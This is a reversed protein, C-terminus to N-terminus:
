NSIKGKHILRAKLVQFSATTPATPPAPTETISKPVDTVPPTVTQLPPTGPAPDNKKIAEVQRKDLTEPGNENSKLGLYGAASVGLLTLQWTEFEPLPYLIGKVYSFFLTIYGIGFILNFMVAQFRHITVGGEDSMIDLFLGKTKEVDQHRAPVDDESNDNDRGIQNNDMVRGFISTALTGGLLMVATPNLAILNGSYIFFSVFCGLVIMTWWFLQVRSYSYPRDKLPRLENTSPDYSLDKCLNTNWFLYLGSGLVLLFGLIVSFTFNRLPPRYLEKPHKKQYDYSAALSASDANLPKVANSDAATNTTGAALNGKGKNVTNNSTDKVTSDAAPRGTSDQSIAAVSFILFLPLLFFLKKM